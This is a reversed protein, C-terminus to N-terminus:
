KHKTRNFMARKQMQKITTFKKLNQQRIFKSHKNKKPEILELPQEIIPITLNSMMEEETKMITALENVEQVTLEVLKKAIDAITMNKRPEIIVTACHINDTTQIMRMRLTEAIRERQQSEIEPSIYAIIIEPKSM